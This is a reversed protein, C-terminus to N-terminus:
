KNTRKNICTHGRPPEGGSERAAARLDARRLPIRQHQVGLFLYCCCIHLQLLVYIYIYIYM